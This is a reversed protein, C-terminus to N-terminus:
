AARGAGLLTQGEGPARALMAKPLGFRQLVLCAVMATALGMAVWFWISPGAGTSIAYSVWADGRAVVMVYVFDNVLRDAELTFALPRPLEPNTSLTGDFESTTPYAGQRVFVDVWASSSGARGPEVELKVREHAATRVLFFDVSSRGEPLADHPSPVSAPVLTRASMVGAPLAVAAVLTARLTFEGPADISVWWRGPRLV